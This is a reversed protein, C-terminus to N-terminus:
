WGQRAVEGFLAFVRVRHAAVVARLVRLFKCRKDAGGGFDTEGVPAALGTAEEM